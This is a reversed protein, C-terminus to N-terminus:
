PEYGPPTTDCDYFGNGQTLAGNPIGYLNLHKEDMYFDPINTTRYQCTTTTHNYYLHDSVSYHYQNSNFLPNVIYEIGYNDPSNSFNGEMRMLFSPADSNNNFTHNWMQAFIKGMDDEVYVYNTTDAVQKITFNNEEEILIVPDRFNIIPFEGSINIVDIWKVKGDSDSVTFNFNIITVKLTWSDKQVINTNFPQYSFQINTQSALQKIEDLTSNITYNLEEGEYIPFMLDLKNGQPDNGTMIANIIDVESDSLYVYDEKEM